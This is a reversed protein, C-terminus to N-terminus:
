ASITTLFTAPSRVETLWIPMIRLDAYHAQCRRVLATDGVTARVAQCRRPSTSSSAAAATPGGTGTDDAATARSTSTLNHSVKM